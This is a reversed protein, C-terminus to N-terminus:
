EKSWRNVEAIPVNLAKAIMSSSDGRAKMAKAQAAWEPAPANFAEMERALEEQQQKRLEHQEIAADDDYYLDLGIGLEKAAFKKADSEAGKLADGFETGMEWRQSGMGGKVITTVLKGKNDYLQVTLEGYVAVDRVLKNGKSTQEDYVQLMFRDNGSIPLLQFSWAFGFAKNLRDTTHGHQIYKFTKGGRGERTRIAHEPTKGYLIRFQEENIIPASVDQFKGISREKPAERTIHGNAKPPAILKPHKTAM